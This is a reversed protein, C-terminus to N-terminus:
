RATCPIDNSGVITQGFAMFMYTNAHDVANETTRFKIGNSLFDLDISAETSTSNALLRTNNPNYTNRKNDFMCWSEATTTGKVILFTPKFGCYLFTGDSSTNGSYKGFKSYGVKEAFCYAIYDNGSGNTTTTTGVTFVSSTPETDNWLTSATGSAGSTELLLYKTAGLSKHYVGWQNSGSIDKVIIMKPAVGLGHGITANAGTGTFKVISFGATTNASVTSTISGDTNSSGSGNAKWSWSAFTNSSECYRNNTGHTFGDSTWATIGDSLTYESDAANSFLTKQVGRVADVLVHDQTGTRQKTWNFDPQFPIGSITEGANTGSWLKTFFHDTSKNITTYAM